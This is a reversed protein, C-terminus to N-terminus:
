QVAARFEPSEFFESVTDCSDPARGLRQDEANQLVGLMFVPAYTRQARSGPPFHLDMWQGIQSNASRAVPLGCGVARGLMVAFTTLRDIDGDSPTRDSHHTKAVKGNSIAPATPAATDSPAVVPQPTPKSCRGLLLSAFLLVSVIMVLIFCGRAM